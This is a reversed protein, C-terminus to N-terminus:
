TIAQFWEVTRTLGERLDTKAKWGTAKTFKSSSAYNAPVDGPRKGLDRVKVRYGLIDSIMQVVDRVKTGKETGVNFIHFGKLDLPAIHASALDEVFIFDRVQLGGWYLPVSKYELGSKIFNPIAHTEPNHNEWPGYPNFYRLIVVDFGHVFNYSALFSEVAVKSAGYPNVALVQADEKLPLKEPFGYVTASSSFIIKSVGATKMAELLVVSGNINNDVFLLPNSVSEAVETSSAMHIVASIGKLSKKLWKADRIDGKIFTARKDLFQKTSKSLNDYIVVKHGQDLLLKSIHSGIFGAGGTIFVKM